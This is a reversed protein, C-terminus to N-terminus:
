VFDKVIRRVSRHNTPLHLDDAVHDAPYGYLGFRNGKSHSIIVLHEPESEIHGRFPDIVPIEYRGLKVLAIRRGNRFVTKDFVPHDIISYVCFKPLQLPIGQWIFQVVHLQEVLAAIPEPLDIERM